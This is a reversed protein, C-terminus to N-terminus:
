ARKGRSQREAIEALRIELFRNLIADPVPKEPTFHLTSKTHSWGELMDEIQPFVTSSFAYLSLHFKWASFGAAIHGGKLQFAPMGHSLVQTANPLRDLLQLRLVELAKRQDAPLGALYAAHPSARPASNRSPRDPPPTDPM